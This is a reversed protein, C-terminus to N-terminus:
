IREVSLTVFRSRRGTRVEESVGYALLQGDPAPSYQALALSGDASWTNPDILLTPAGNLNSRVYVRSQKELGTNKRYFLRGAEQVPISTKPYNWLETIRTRLQERMPLRLLYDITLKNQAAVWEAVDKSDLDEMWRYPDPVKTGHYDDVVDNKPAVPYQTRSSQRGTRADVITVLLAIAFFHCAFRRAM